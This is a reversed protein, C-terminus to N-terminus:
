PTLFSLSNVNKGDPLLGISEPDKYMIFGAFSGLILVCVGVVLWGSQWGYQEIVLSVPIPIIIGGFSLGMTSIAMARNRKTIFWKSVTSDSVTHGLCIFGVSIFLSYIIFFFWFNTTYYIFISGSFVLAVGLFIIKKPGQNDLIFGVIPNVILGLLRGAVYIGSLLGSSWGLSTTMAGLFVGFSVVGFGYSLGGLLFAAFAVYWGYFINKHFNM